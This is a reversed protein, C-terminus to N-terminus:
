LCVLCILQFNLVYFQRTDASAAPMINNEDKDRQLANSQTTSEKVVNQSSYPTIHSFCIRNMPYMLSKGYQINYVYMIQQKEKLKPRYQNEQPNGKKRSIKTNISQRIQSDYGKDNQYDKTEHLVRIIM